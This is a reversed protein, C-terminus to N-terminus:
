LYTSERTMSKDREQRKSIRMFFDEKDNKIHYEWKEDTKMGLFKPSDSPSVSVSGPARTRVM